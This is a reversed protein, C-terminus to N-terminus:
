MKRLKGFVVNNVLEFFDKEFDYKAETRLKTNIDLYPKLWAKQNFRIVGHVKKLMLEHNLAEKLTTIHAFYNNKYYLNCVLKKCKKIKIREPLFSLDNRFNHFRKPYEADVELIYGKDSDVYNKLFNKM